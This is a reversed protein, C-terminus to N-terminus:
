KDARSGHEAKPHQNSSSLVEIRLYSSGIRFQSMKRLHASLVRSGDAFTGNTSRLDQLLLTDGRVEVSCHLRSVEPDDIQLDAKGGVRGITILPRSLEFEMGQSRGAVVCIKITQGPPIELSKTESAADRDLRAASLKGSPEAPQSVVTPPASKPEATNTTVATMCMWCKAPLEGDSPAGGSHLLAGCNPCREQM